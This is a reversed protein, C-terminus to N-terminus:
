PFVVSAALLLLVPAETAYLAVSAGALGASRFVGVHAFLLGALLAALSYWLSPPMSSVSRRKVIGRVLAGILSLAYGLAGLWALICGNMMWTKAAGAAARQEAFQEGDHKFFAIILARRAMKDAGRVFHDCVPEDVSCLFDSIVLASSSENTLRFRMALVCYSIYAVATVLAAVVGVRVWPPSAAAKWWPVAQNAARRKTASSSSSSSSSASASASAGAKRSSSSAVPTSMASSPTSDTYQRMLLAGSPPSWSPHDPTSTSVNSTTMSRKGSAKQTKSSSSSNSSSSNSSRGSGGWSMLASCTVTEGTRGTGLPPPPPPPPTSSSSSSSSANQKHRKKSRRRGEDIDDDALRSNNKLKIGKKKSQGM